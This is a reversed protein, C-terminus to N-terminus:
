KATKLYAILNERDGEKSVKRSMKTGKMFGKPDALFKDLNEEDWVVGSAKM